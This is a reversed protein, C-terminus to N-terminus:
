MGSYHGRLWSIIKAGIYSMSSIIAAPILGTVFSIDRGVGSTLRQMAAEQEETVEEGGFFGDGDLDYKNLDWQYYIGDYTALGVILIYITLFIVVSIWLQKKGERFLKKGLFLIALLGLFAVTAPIALHFPIKIENM